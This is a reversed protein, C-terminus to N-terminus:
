EEEKPPEVAGLLAMAQQASAAGIAALLLEGRVRVAAWGGEAKGVGGDSGSLYGSVLRTRAAEARDASPYRVLLLTMTEETGSRRYRALVGPSDESLGLLDGEPVAVHSGLLSWSRVYHIHSEVLGQRPLWGVLVPRRGPKEIREAVAKGVSAVASRSEDTDAFAVVSVYYRDKWFFLSSRGLESEQGIGGSEGERVDHHYAAYAGESSGMDFIDVILEPAAPKTFRQSVAARFGQALYVEAGGNILDFLSERGYHGDEGERRYGDAAEPLLAALEPFSTGVKGDGSAKGVESMAASPPPAGAARHASKNGKCAALCVVGVLVLPVFSRLM